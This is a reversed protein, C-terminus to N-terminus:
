MVTDHIPIEEGFPAKPEWDLRCSFCLQQKWFGHCKGTWIDALPEPILNPVRLQPTQYAPQKSVSKSTFRTYLISPPPVRWVLVHLCQMCFLFIFSIKEGMTDRDFSWCRINLSFVFLCLFLVNISHPCSVFYSLPVGCFYSSFHHCQPPHPRDWPGLLLTVPNTLRSDSVGM